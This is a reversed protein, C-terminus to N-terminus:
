EPPSEGGLTMLSLLVQARRISEEEQKRVSDQIDIEEFLVRQITDERRVLARRISEEEQKRLSDQIDIEEFVRQITDERRGLTRDWNVKEEVRSRELFASLSQQKRHSIPKATGSAVGAARNALTTALLNEWDVESKQVSQPLQM